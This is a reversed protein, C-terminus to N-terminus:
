WWVCRFCNWQRRMQLSFQNWLNPFWSEQGSVKRLSDSTYQVFGWGALLACFMSGSFLVEKICIWIWEARCCISVQSSNTGTWSSRRVTQLTRSCPTSVNFYQGTVGAWDMLFQHQPRWMLMLTILLEGTPTIVTSDKFSGSVEQLSSSVTVCWWCDSLGAFADPLPGNQKPEPQWSPKYALLPFCCSTVQWFLQQRPLCLCLAGLTWREWFVVCHRVPPSSSTPVRFQNLLLPPSLWRPCFSGDCYSHKM